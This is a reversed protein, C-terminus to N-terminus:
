RDFGVQAALSPQHDVGIGPRQEEIVVTDQERQEGPLGRAGGFAPFRQALLADELAFELIGTVLEFELPRLELTLRAESSRELRM